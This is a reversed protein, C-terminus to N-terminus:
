FLIMTMMSYREQAYGDNDELSMPESYELLSESEDLTLRDDIIGTVDKCNWSSIISVAEKYNEEEVTFHDRERTIVKKDQYFNFKEM